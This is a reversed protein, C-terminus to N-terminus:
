LLMNAYRKKSGIPCSCNYIGGVPVVAHFLFRGRKFNEWSFDSLKNELYVEHWSKFQEKTAPQPREAAFLYIGKYGALQRENNELQKQLKYAQEYAKKPIDDIRYDFNRSIQGKKYPGYDAALGGEGKQCRLRHFVGLSEFIKWTAFISRM